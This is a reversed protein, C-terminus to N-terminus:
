KIQFIKLDKLDEVIVDKKLTIQNKQIPKLNLVLVGDREKMNQVNFEFGAHKKIIEAIQKKREKEKDIQKSFRSLYKKIFDDNDRNNM